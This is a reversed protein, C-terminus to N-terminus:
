VGSKRRGTMPLAHARMSYIEGSSELLMGNVYSVVSDAQRVATSHRKMGRLMVPLTLGASPAPYLLTEGESKM